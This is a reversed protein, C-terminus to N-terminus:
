RRSEEAKILAVNLREIDTLVVPKGSKKYWPQADFYKQTDPNKFTDGHRAYIEGRMLVLAERPMLSLMFQTLPRVSAYAWRGPIDYGYACCDKTLTFATGFDPTYLIYRTPRAQVSIGEVTLEVDWEAPEGEAAHGGHGPARMDEYERFQERSIREGDAFYCTEGNIVRTELRPLKPIPVSKHRHFGMFLHNPVQDERIVYPGPDNGKYNDNFNDAKQIYWNDGFVMKTFCAKDRYEESIVSNCEKLSYVGNLVTQYDLSPNSFHFNDDDKLAYFLRTPKNAADYFVLMKWRGATQYRVTTGKEEPYRFSTGNAVLEITPPESYRAPETCYFLQYKNEDPYGAYYKQGDTWVYIESERLLDRANKTVLKAKMNELHEKATEEDLMVPHFYQARLNNWTGLLLTASLLAYVICRKM